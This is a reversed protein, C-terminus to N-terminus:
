ILAPIQVPFCQYLNITDQYLTRGARALNYPQTFPAFTLGRRTSWKTYRAPSLQGMKQILEIERNLTHVRMPISQDRSARLKAIVDYSRGTGSMQWLGHYISCSIHERIVDRYTGKSPNGGREYWHMQYVHVSDRSTHRWGCAARMRCIM